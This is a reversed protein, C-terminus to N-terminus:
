WHPLGPIARQWRSSRRNEEHYANEAMPLSKGDNVASALSDHWTHVIRLPLYPSSPVSVGGCRPSRFLASRGSRSPSSRLVVFWEGDTSRDRILRATL